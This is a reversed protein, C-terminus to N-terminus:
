STAKTLLISELPFLLILVFSNESNMFGIVYLTGFGGSGGLYEEGCLVVGLTLM